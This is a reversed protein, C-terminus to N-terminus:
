AFGELLLGTRGRPRVSPRVSLRSLASLCKEYNKQSFFVYFNPKWRVTFM